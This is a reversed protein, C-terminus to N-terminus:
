GILIQQWKQYDLINKNIPKLSFFPIKSAWIKYMVIEFGKCFYKKNDLLSTKNSFWRATTGKQQATPCTLLRDVKCYVEVTYQCYELFPPIWIFCRICSKQAVM